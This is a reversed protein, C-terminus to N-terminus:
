RAITRLVLLFRPLEGDNDSTGDNATLTAVITRMQHSGVLPVGLKLGDNGWGGVGLGWTNNQNSCHCEQDQLHPMCKRLLFVSLRLDIQADLQPVGGEVLSNFLNEVEVFHYRSCNTRHM